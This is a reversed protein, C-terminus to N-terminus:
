VTAAGCAAGGGSDGGARLAGRNGDDEAGGDERGYEPGSIVLLREEGGLALSMAVIARNERKLKDELVPHRAADLRLETTEAFEPMCADFDMAFRARAFVSDMDAITEAAALLPGATARLRETLEKLIRFIEAAEDEALQVLQNNTEVTEFPEVFVTQGTGSAGHVVGPVNRRQESRVPIVFRDNRLTVYDESSEAQRSRLIQRLTKQISDRTQQISARIRRLASSADDSIEGNPLM